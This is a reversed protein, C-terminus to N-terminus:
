RGVVGMAIFVAAVFVIVAILIWTHGLGARPAEIHCAGQTDRALAVAAPSAPTGAAEDDSGLPAAAPDPWAVKDGARGRDVDARLQEVTQRSPSSSMLAEAM